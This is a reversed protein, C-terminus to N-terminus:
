ARALVFVVGVVVETVDAADVPFAELVTNRTLEVEWVDVLINRPHCLCRGARGCRRPASARALEAVRAGVVM